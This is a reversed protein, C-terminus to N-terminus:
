FFITRYNYYYVYQSSSLVNVFYYIAYIVIFSVAGKRICSTTLTDPVICLSPIMFLAIYKLVREISGSNQLVNVLILYTIFILIYLRYKGITQSAAFVVFSFLLLRVFMNMLSFGSNGFESLYYSYSNGSNSIISSIIYLIFSQIDSRFIFTILFFLLLMLYMRKNMKKYLLFDPIYLLLLFPLGFIASNHFLLSTFVLAIGISNRKYILSCFGLTFLSISMGQRIGSMFFLMFGPDFYFFLIALWRWKADVLKLLTYIACVTTFQVIFLLGYFNWGLQWVLKNLVLWGIEIDTARNVRNFFLFTGRYLPSSPGNYTIFMKHYAPIDQGIDNQFAMVFLLTFMSIYLCGEWGKHQSLYACTIAFLGLSIWLFM